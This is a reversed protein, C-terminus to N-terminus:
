NQQQSLNAHSFRDFLVPGGMDPLRRTMGGGKDNDDSVRHQPQGGTRRSEFPIRDRGKGNEDHRQEDLAGVPAIIQSQVGFEILKQTHIM